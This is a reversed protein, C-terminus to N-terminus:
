HKETLSTDLEEDDEDDIDSDTISPAPRSRDKLRIHMAQLQDNVLKVIHRSVNVDQMICLPLNKVGATALAIRMSQTTTRIRRNRNSKTTQFKEEIAVRDLDDTAIKKSYHFPGIGWRSVLWDRDLSVKQRGFIMFLVLVIMFLGIGIFPLLFLMPFIMFWGPKALIMGAFVSWTVANWFAAFVAMFGGAIIRAKLGDLARVSYILQDPTHDEVRIANDPFPGLPEDAIPAEVVALTGPQIVQGRNITGCFPCKLENDVAENAPPLSGGCSGCKEPFHITPPRPTDSPSKDGLVENIRDVIWDKEPNSLPTGFKLNRGVGNITVAYIPRDNQQYSEVLEASSGRALDAEDTRVRGFLTKQIVAHAPDVLLMVREFKMKIAFWAMGLGVAWFLGLFAFIGLLPRGAVGGAFMMATFFTMFGNWVVAFCGLGAAGSGGGPIFLVLRDPAREVVQIKSGPLAFAAVDATDDIRPFEEDNM